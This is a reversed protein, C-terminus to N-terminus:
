KVGTAQTVLRAAAAEDAVAKVLMGDIAPIPDSIVIREGEALGGTITM